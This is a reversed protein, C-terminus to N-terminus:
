PHAGELSTSVSPPLSCNQVIICQPGEIWLQSIALNEISSHSLM